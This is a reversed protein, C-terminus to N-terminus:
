IGEWILYVQHYKDIENDVQWYRARNYNKINRIKHEAKYNTNDIVISGINEYWTVNYCSKAKPRELTDGDV